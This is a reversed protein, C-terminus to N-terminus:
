FMAKLEINMEYPTYDEQVTRFQLHLPTSCFQKNTLIWSNANASKRVLTYCEESAGSAIVEIPYQSSDQHAFYMCAADIEVSEGQKLSSINPFALISLNDTTFHSYITIPITITSKDNNKISLKIFSHIDDTITDLAMIKVKYINGIQNYTFALKDSIDNPININYQPFVEHGDFMTILPIWIVNDVDNMISVKIDNLPTLLKYKDRIDDALNEIVNDNATTMDLYFDFYLMSPNEDVYDKNTFNNIAYLKYVMGNFMIRTNKTLSLTDKNCQVIVDIHSNAQTITKAVQANTSTIVDDIICPYQIVEGKDNLWKLWNNCRRINCTSITELDTTTEYVMWYNNNWKYYRGRPADHTIDKFYLSRYNDSDKNLGTEVDLVTGIWCPPNSVFEFDFPINEEYIDNHVITSNDFMNDIVAQQTDRWNENLSQAVNNLYNSFYVLKGM